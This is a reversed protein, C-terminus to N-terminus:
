VHHHDAAHQCYAVILAAAFAAAACAFPLRPHLAYIFGAFLSGGVMGLSRAANFLGAIRGMHGAQGRAALAQQLPLVMANFATFIVNAAIFSGAGPMILAAALLVVNLGLVCILTRRGDRGRALYLQLLMNAAFGTLGTLAKILGNYSTPFALVDTIYYNFANEYGTTGFSALMVGVLMLVLPLTWNARPAAAQATLPKAPLSAPPEDLLLLAGAGLAVLVIAQQRFVWALSAVGIFGGTLYGLAAAAAMVAGHISLLRPRAREDGLNGCYAMAIVQYGCTFAGGLLRALVLAAPTTILGFLWQAVGYGALSLAMMPVAGRRDALRGWLPSFLFYTVSMAAFSIGFMASPFGLANFFAPTVPHAFNSAWMMLFYFIELRVFTAKKM